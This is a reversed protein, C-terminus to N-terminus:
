AIRGLNSIQIGKLSFKTQLDPAPQPLNVLGREVDVEKRGSHGFNRAAAVGQDPRGEAADDGLLEM